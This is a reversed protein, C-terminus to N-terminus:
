ELPNLFLREIVEFFNGSSPRPLNDSLLNGKADFLLYRPITVNSGLFESLVNDAENTIFYHYGNLHYKLVDEEWKKSNNPFDVSVYLLKIQHEDLWRHVEKNHLFEKKCPACYTAWMDVLVPTGTFYSRILAPLDMSPYEALKNLGNMDNYLFVGYANNSNHSDRNYMELAPLYISVPFKERFLKISSAYQADSEIGMINRRIQLGNAFDAEQCDVPMYEKYQQGEDWLGTPHIDGKSLYGESMLRSVISMNGLRMSTGAYKSDFPNYKAYFTCLVKKQEAETLGTHHIRGRIAHCFVMDFEKSSFDFFDKSIKHNEYLECIPAFLKQKKDELGSVIRELSSNKLADDIHVAGSALLNQEKLLNNGAANTGGFILNGNDVHILISDGPCLIIRQKPCYENGTILIFVSKDWSIRKTAIGNNFIFFDAAQMFHAPNSDIPRGFSLYTNDPCKTNIVTISSQQAMVPMLMFPLLLLVVFIKVKM